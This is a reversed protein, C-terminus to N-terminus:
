TDSPMAFAQRFTFAQETPGHQQLFRLKAKADLPSPTLGAPIWWLVMHARPMRHFWENKRRMIDKHESRYVYDHLSEISDWVSLNVIQDNDFGHNSLSEDEETLRWIFGRSQEALRNIRDLNAVFDALLESELPEKLHAINLQSLHWDSM